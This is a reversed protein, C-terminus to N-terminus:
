EMFKLFLDARTSKALILHIEQVSGNQTNKPPQDTVQHGCPPRSHKKM